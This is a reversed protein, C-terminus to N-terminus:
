IIGNFSKVRAVYADNADNGYQNSVVFIFMVIHLSVRPSKKM